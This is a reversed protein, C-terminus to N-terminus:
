LGRRPVSPRPERYDPISQIAWPELESIWTPLDPKSRAGHQFYWARAGYLDIHRGSEEIPVMTMRTGFTGMIKPKGHVVWYQGNVGCNFNLVGSGM